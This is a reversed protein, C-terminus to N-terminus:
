HSNNIFFFYNEIFIIDSAFVIIINEYARMGRILMDTHM